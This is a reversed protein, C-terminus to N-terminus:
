LTKYSEKSIITDDPELPRKETTTSQMGMAYTMPDYIATMQDFYRKRTEETTLGKGVAYEFFKDLCTRDLRAYIVEISEYPYAKVCMPCINNLPGSPELNLEISYLIEQDDDWLVCCTMEDILYSTNVRIVLPINITANGNSDKIDRDANCLHHFRKRIEMVKSKEM